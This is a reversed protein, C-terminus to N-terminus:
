QLKLFGLAFFTISQFIIEIKQKVEHLYIEAQLDFFDTRCFFLIMVISIVIRRTNAPM